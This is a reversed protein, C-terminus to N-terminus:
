NETPPEVHDIVLCDVPGKGSELKLGLQEQVATFITPGSEAVVNISAGDPGRISTSADDPTWELTLDYEGTLGTKDLVTRGTIQTLSSLLSSISIAHATLHGRALQTSGRAARDKSDTVGDTIDANSAGKLKSGSKSVTLWYIPLERTESHAKLKFRDALLAQLMLGRQERNLKHLDDVDAGSVKAEIDFKSSKVWDPAGAIRDDNTNFLGYAQRILMLLPTNVVSIGDPTTGSRFQGTPSRDSKISVVDFEPVRAAAPAPGQDVTTVQAPAAAPILVIAAIVVLSTRSTFRHSRM